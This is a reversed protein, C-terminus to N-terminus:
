SSMTARMFNLFCPTLVLLSTASWSKRYIRFLQGQAKIIYNERIYKWNGWEDHPHTITLSYEGNLVETIECSTPVLIRLGNHSFDTEDPAFVSIYDYM